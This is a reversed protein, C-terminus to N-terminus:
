TPRLRHSFARTRPTRPSRPPQRPHVRRRPPLDGPRLDHTRHHPPWLLRYRRYLYVSLAAWGAILLVPWGFHLHIAIRALIAVTYIVWTPWKRLEGGLVIAALIIVEEGVSATLAKVVLVWIPAATDSYPYGPGDIGSLTLSTALYSLLLAGLILGADLLRRGQRRGQRCDMHRQHIGALVLSAMCFATVAAIFFTLDAQQEVTREAHNQRRSPNVLLAVSAAISWGYAGLYAVTTAATFCTLSPRDSQRM